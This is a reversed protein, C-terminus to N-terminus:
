LALKEHMSFRSSSSVTIIKFKSFIATGLAQTLKAEAGSNCNVYVTVDPASAQKGVM